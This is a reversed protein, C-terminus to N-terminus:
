GAVEEDTFYSSFKEVINKAIKENIFGLIVGFVVAEQDNVIFDKVNMNGFSLSLFNNQICAAFLLSILSTYLLMLGPSVFGGSFDTLEGNILAVKLSAKALWVGVMSGIVILGYPIIDMQITTTTGKSAMWQIIFGIIMAVGFAIGGMNILFKQKKAAGLKLVIRSKLKRCQTLSYATMPTDGVLGVEALNLLENFYKSFNTISKEGEVVPFNSLIVNNIDEILIALDMQPQTPQLKDTKEIIVLSNDDNPGVAFAGIGSNGVPNKKVLKRQDNAM